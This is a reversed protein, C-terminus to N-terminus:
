ECRAQNRRHNHERRQRNDTDKDTDHAAVFHRVEVLINREGHEEVSDTHEVMVPVQDYAKDLRGEVAVKNCAVGTEEAKGRM